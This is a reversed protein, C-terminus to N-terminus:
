PAPKPRSSNGLPESPPATTGPNAARWLLWGLGLATRLWRGVTPPAADQSAPRRLGNVAQVAWGVYQAGAGYRDVTKSVVSSAQQVQHLAHVVEGRIADLDQAIRAELRTLRRVTVVVLALAAVAALALVVTAAVLVILLASGLM